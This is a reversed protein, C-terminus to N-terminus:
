SPAINVHKKKKKKGTPVVTSTLNTAYLHQGEDLYFSLNPTNNM